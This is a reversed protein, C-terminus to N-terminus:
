VQIFRPENDEPGLAQDGADVPSSPLDLLPFRYDSLALREYDSWFTPMAVPAIGDPGKRNLARLTQRLVELDRSPAKSLDGESWAFGLENAREKVRYVNLLMRAQRKKLRLYPEVQGLMWRTQNGKLRWSYLAAWKETAARALNVAGGWDQALNELLEKAKESMAIGVIPQYHKAIALYGEGDILGALYAKDGTSPNDVHFGPGFRM